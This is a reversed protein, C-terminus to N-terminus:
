RRWSAGRSTSSAARCPWPTSAPTIWWKFQFNFRTDSAAVVRQGVQAIYNQLDPSDYYGFRKLIEPDAERGITADGSEDFISFAEGRGPLLGAALMAQSVSLLFQRRSWGTADGDCLACWGM